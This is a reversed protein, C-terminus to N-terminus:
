HWTPINESIMDSMDDVGSCRRQSVICFLIKVDSSWLVVVALLLTWNWNKPETKNQWEQYIDRYIGWFLFTCNLSYSSRSGGAQEEPRPYSFDTNEKKGNKRGDSEWHFVQSICRLFHWNWEWVCVFTINARILKEIELLIISPKDHYDHHYDHYDNNSKNPQPKVHLWIM